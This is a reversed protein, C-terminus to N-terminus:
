VKYFSRAAKLYSQNNTLGLKWEAGVLYNSWVSKCLAALRAHENDGLPHRKM